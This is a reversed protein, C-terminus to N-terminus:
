SNLSSLACGIPEGRRSLSQKLRSAAFFFFTWLVVSVSGNKQVGRTARIQTYVASDSIRAHQLNCSMKHGHLEDWDVPGAEKSVMGNLSFRALNCRMWFSPLRWVPDVHTGCELNADDQRAQGARVEGRRVADRRPRIQGQCNAIRSRSSLRLAM